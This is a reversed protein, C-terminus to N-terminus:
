SSIIWTFQDLGTGTTKLLLIFLRGSMWVPVIDNLPFVTMKWIQDPEELLWYGGLLPQNEQPQCILLREKACISQLRSCPHM